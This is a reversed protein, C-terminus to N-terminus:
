AEATDSYVKIKHKNIRQMTKESVAGYTKGIEGKSGKYIPKLKKKKKYIYIIFFYNNYCM